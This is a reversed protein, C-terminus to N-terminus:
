MVVCNMKKKPSSKEKEGADPRVNARSPVRGHEVGPPASLPGYNPQPIADGRTSLRPLLNRRANARPIQTLPMSIRNPSAGALARRSMGVDPASGRRGNSPNIVPPPRLEVTTPVNRPASIAHRANPRVANNNSATARYASQHLSPLRPIPPQLSQLSQPSRSAASSRRRSPGSSELSPFTTPHLLSPRRPQPPTVFTPSIARTSPLDTSSQSQVAGRSQYPHNSAVPPMRQGWNAPIAPVPPTSSAANSGSAGSAGSVPAGNPHSLSVSQSAEATATYAPPPPVWNDADSEHPMERMGDARRYELPRFPLARLHRRNAPSVAAVTAARALSMQSRPQQNDYPMEFAAQAEEATLEDEDTPRRISAPRESNAATRARVPTSGLRSNRRSSTTGGQVRRQALTRTRVLEVEREFDISGEPLMEGPCLPDLDYETKTPRPAPASAPKSKDFDLVIVIGKSGAPAGPVEDAPVTSSNGVAILRQVKSSITVWRLACIEHYTDPGDSLIPICFCPQIPSLDSKTTSQFDWEPVQYIWISTTGRMRLSVAALDANPSVAPMADDVFESRTWRQQDPLFMKRQTFRQTAIDYVGWTDEQSNFAFLENVHGTDADPLLTAQRAIRASEPFLMSGTWLTDPSEPMPVGEENLPGDFLGPLVYLSSSISKRAYSTILLTRGDDSFELTDGVQGTLTRRATEPAAPGIAVVEIGFRNGTIMILGDPAIAVTEAEHVLSITRRKKTQSDQEGHIEYLDVQSPRSLVALLFGDETIDIAMPKRKIQLTRAWLRPLQTTKILWINSSSYVAVFNGKRSVNFDFADPLASSSATNSVLELVTLAPHAYPSPNTPKAANNLRDDDTMTSTRATSNGSMGSSSSIDTNGASSASLHTHVQEEEEDSSVSATRSRRYRAGAPEGGRDHGAPAKGRYDTQIALPHGADQTARGGVMM